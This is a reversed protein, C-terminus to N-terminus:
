FCSSTHGRVLSINMTKTKMPVTITIDLCPVHAPVICPFIYFTNSTDPTETTHVANKRWAKELPVINAYISSNVFSLHLRATELTKPLGTFTFTVGSSHKFTATQDANIYLVGHMYKENQGIYWVIHVGSCGGDGWRRMLGSSLLLRANQALADVITSTDSRNLHNEKFFRPGEDFSVIKTATNYVITDALPWVNDDDDEFFPSGHIRIICFRKADLPFMSYVRWEDTNNRKTYWRSYSPNDPFRAVLKLNVNTVMSDIPSDVIFFQNRHEQVGYLCALLICTKGNSTSQVSALESQWPVGSCNAINIYKDAWERQHTGEISPFAQITKINGVIDCILARKPIHKMNPKKQDM